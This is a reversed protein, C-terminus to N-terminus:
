SSAATRSLGNLAKFWKCDERLLGHILADGSAFWNRLRGEIRFGLQQALNLSKENGVAIIATVRRCKCTEFAYYTCAFAFSKSIFQPSQSAVTIECNGETFRSFVAVGLISGSQSLSTLWTVQRIDWAVGLVQQAWLLHELKQEACIM